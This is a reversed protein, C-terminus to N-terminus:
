DKRDSSAYPSTGAPAPRRLTFQHARVAPIVFEAFAAPQPPIWGPGGRGHCLVCDVAAGVCVPCAGLAGAIDELTSRLRQVDETLSDLERRVREIVARQHELEANSRDLDIDAVQQDATDEALRRTLLQLVPALSPDHGVYTTVESTVDEGALHRRVLDHVDLDPAAPSAPAAM